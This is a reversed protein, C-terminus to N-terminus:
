SESQSKCPRMMTLSSFFFSPWFKGTSILKNYLLRDKPRQTRYGKNDSIEFKDIARPVPPATERWKMTRNEHVAEAQFMTYTYYSLNVYIYVTTRWMANRLKWCFQCVVGPLRDHQLEEEVDMIMDKDVSASNRVAVICFTRFLSTHREMLTLLPFEGSIM